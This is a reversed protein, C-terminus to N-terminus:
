RTSPVIPLMLARLKYSLRSWDAHYWRVFCHLSCPCDYLPTSEIGDSNLLEKCDALSRAASARRRDWGGWVAAASVVFPMSCRFPPINRHLLFSFSAGSLVNTMSNSLLRATSPPLPLSLLLQKSEGLRDYGSSLLFRSKLFPGTANSSLGTGSLVDTGRACFPFSGDLVSGATSCCCTNSSLLSTNSQKSFEPSLCPLPNQSPNCDPGQGDGRAWEKSQMAHSRTPPLTSATGPHSRGSRAGFASM